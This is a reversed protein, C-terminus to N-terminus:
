ILEVMKKRTSTAFAYVIPMWLAIIIGIATAMAIYMDNITVDPDHTYSLIYPMMGAGDLWQWTAPEPINLFQFYLYDGVGGFDPLVITSIIVIAFYVSIPDPRTKRVYDLVFSFTLWAGGFSGAVVYLTMNLSKNYLSPIDKQDGVPLGLLQYEDLCIKDTNGQPSFQNPAFCESQIQGVYDHHNTADLNAFAATIAITFVLMALMLFLAPRAYDLRFSM